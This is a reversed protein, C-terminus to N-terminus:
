QDDCKLFNIDIIIGFDLLDKYSVGLVKQGM